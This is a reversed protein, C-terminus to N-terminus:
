PLPVPVVWTYCIEFVLLLIFTSASTCSFIVFLITSLINQLSLLSPPRCGSSKSRSFPLISLTKSLYYYFYTQYDILLVLINLMYLVLLHLRSRLFDFIIWSMIITHQDSLEVDVMDFSDIQFWDFSLVTPTFNQEAFVTLCYHPNLCFSAWNRVVTWM